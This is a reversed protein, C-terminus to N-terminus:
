FPLIKCSLFTEVKQIALARSIVRELYHVSRTFDVPQTLFVYSTQFAVVGQTYKCRYKAIGSQIPLMNLLKKFRGPSFRDGEESETLWKMFHIGKLFRLFTSFNCALISLLHDFFATGEKETM